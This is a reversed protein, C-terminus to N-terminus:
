IWPISGPGYVDGARIIIVGFEPSNLKLVAIEAEIKTQCYANNEDSLVGSETVNEPYDFGYVLVTSLHVFTKIGAQKAAQAINVTGDVNIQRFHKIDGAEEAIQANHLILDVGQCAKACF